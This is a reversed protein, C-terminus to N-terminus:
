FKVKYKDDKKKKEKEKESADKAVDAKTIDITKHINVETKNPLAYGHTSSYLEAAENSTKVEPLVEYLPRQETPLPPM